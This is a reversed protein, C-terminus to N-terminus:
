AELGPKEGKLGEFCGKQVFLPGIGLQDASGLLGLMASKLRM